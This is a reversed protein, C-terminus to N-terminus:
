AFAEEVFAIWAQAAQTQYSQKRWILALRWHLLDDDVALVSVNRTDAKHVVTEPLLAVGLGAIASEFLFDWQSSEYLIGPEFGAQICSEFVRDYLAFGQQFMLFSEHKLDRMQISECGALPHDASTVALIKRDIIQRIEFQEEDVPLIAVGVDINGELLSQEMIKAGEEVIRMGAEPYFRRFDAIIEPFFSSGIVPPLGFTFSGKKHLKIEEAEHWLDEASRLVKRAHQRIIEGEKTVFLHRTSRDLLRLGIEEELQHITKSLAPQSIHLKESARSFSLEKCVELFFRLQKIDM